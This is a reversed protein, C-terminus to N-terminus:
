GHRRASYDGFLPVKWFPPVPGSDGKLAHAPRDDAAAAAQRRDHALVALPLEVLLASM